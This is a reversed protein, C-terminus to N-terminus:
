RLKINEIDLLRDLDYLGDVPKDKMMYAINLVDEALEKFGVVRCHLHDVRWDNILEDYELFSKIEVKKGTEDLM